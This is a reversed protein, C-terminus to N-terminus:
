AVATMPVNLRYGVGWENLIMSPSSPDEELKERLYKIYLRLYHRCDGYEPGWVTALLKEHTVPRGADRVLCLLLNFETATLTLERGGHWVRRSSSDLRLDGVTLSTAFGPHPRVAPRRMIAQLRARIEVPKLPLVLYDSAGAEYARVIEDEEATSSVIVVPLSKLVAIRSCLSIARQSLPSEHILVLDYSASDVKALAQEPPCEVVTLHDDPLSCGEWSPYQIWLVQLAGALEL